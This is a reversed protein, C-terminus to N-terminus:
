HVAIYKDVWGSFPMNSAQCDRIFSSYADHRPKQTFMLKWSRKLYWPAIVDKELWRIRRIPRDVSFFIELKNKFYLQGILEYSNM